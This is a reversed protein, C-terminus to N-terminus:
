DFLGSQFESTEAPDPQDEKLKKPTVPVPEDDDLPLTANIQERKSQRTKRLWRVACRMVIGANQVKLLYGMKMLVQMRDHALKVNREAKAIRNMNLYTLVNFPEDSYKQIFRSLASFLNKVTTLVTQIQKLSFKINLNNSSPFQPKIKKPIAGVRHCELFLKELSETLLELIRTIDPMLAGERGITIVQKSVKKFTASVDEFDWDM